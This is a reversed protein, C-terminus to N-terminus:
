QPRGYDEIHETGMFVVLATADSSSQDLPSCVLRVLVAQLGAKMGALASLRVVLLPVAELIPLLNLNGVPSCLAVM